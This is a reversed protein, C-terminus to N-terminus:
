DGTSIVEDDVPIRGEFVISLRHLASTRDQVPRNWLESANMIALYLVKRVSDPPRSRAGTNRCRVCSLTSCEVANTTYIVKRTAPPYGFFPRLNAWHTRWMRSIQPFRSDWRAAFV